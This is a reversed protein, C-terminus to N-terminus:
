RLVEQERMWHDFAELAAELLQERLDGTIYFYDFGLVNHRAFGLSPRNTGRMLAISNFGMRGIETIYNGSIFGIVNENINSGEPIPHFKVNVFSMAERWRNHLRVINRVVYM